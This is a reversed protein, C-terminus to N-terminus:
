SVSVVIQELSFMLPYESYFVKIKVQLGEEKVQLAIEVQSVQVEVELPSLPVQTPTLILIWDSSLCFRTLNGLGLTLAAM